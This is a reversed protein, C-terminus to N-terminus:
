KKIYKGLRRLVCEKVQNIINLCKKRDLKNELGVKLMDEESINSNKLLIKNSLCKFAIKKDYFKIFQM